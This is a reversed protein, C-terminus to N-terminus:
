VEYPVAASRSGNLTAPDPKAIARVPATSTQKDFVKMDSNGPIKKAGTQTLYCVHGLKQPYLGSLGTYYATAVHQGPKATINKKLDNADKCKHLDDILEFVLMDSKLKGSKEKSIFGVLIGKLTGGKMEPTWWADVDVSDGTFKEMTFQQQKSESM